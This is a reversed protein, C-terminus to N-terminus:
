CPTVSSNNDFVVVVVEFVVDKIERTIHRAQETHTSRGTRRNLTQIGSPKVWVFELELPHSSDYGYLQLPLRRSLKVWPSKTPCSKIPPSSAELRMTSIIIIIITITM